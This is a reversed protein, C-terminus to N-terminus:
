IGICVSQKPFIKEPVKAVPYWAIPKHIHKWIEYAANLRERLSLSANEGYVRCGLVILTEKGEPEKNAAHIMLSTMVVVLIFAMSVIGEAGYVWFKMFRKQKWKKRLANVKRFFLGYFIFLLAVIIGTLNGISLGVTLLLPIVFLPLSCVGVAVLVIRLVITWKIKKLIKM